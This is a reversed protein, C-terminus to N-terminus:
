CEDNEGGPENAKSQSKEKVLGYKKRREYIEKEVEQLPRAYYSLSADRLEDITKQDVKVDEPLPLKVLRHPKGRIKLLPIKVTQDIM